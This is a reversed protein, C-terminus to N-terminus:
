RAGRSAIECALCAMATAYVRGGEASWADVPDWSGKADRDADRRQHVPLAKVLHARWQEWHSGGKLSMALTGWYWYYLDISEGAADWVPPRALVLDSGKRVMESASADEGAVIRAAVAIATLSESRDAPFRAMSETTRAPPGGRQQYGTRGFEPETMKDIWNRADRFAAEDADLGAAKASRLVMVMLGTVSTDNDGDPPSSYRWGLYPNKSRMVFSVAGQAPGRLKASQSLGYAEVLALAGYAHNYIFHQSRRGGICGDADQMACLQKLARDVNQAHPGTNPTEGAGLFCLLALGTVGVDYAAEGPGDCRPGSCHAGFEAASWLGSPSQHRALWDLSLGVSTKLDQLEAESPPAAPAVRVAVPPRLTRAAVAPQSQQVRVVAAPASAASGAAAGRAAMQQEVRLAVNAAIQDVVEPSVETVRVDM